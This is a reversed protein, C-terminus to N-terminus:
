QQSAYALDNSNEGISAVLSERSLGFPAACAFTGWLEWIPRIDVPWKRYCSYLREMGGRRLYDGGAAPLLDVFVDHMKDLHREFALSFDAKTRRNRVKEPLLADLAQIHVHKVTRGRLRIREPTSFAFEIFRRAYMPTRPEYGVRACQRDFQDRALEFFPNKLSEFMSRRPRNAIAMASSKDAANRCETLVQEIAPDLWFAGDFANPGKPRRSRLLRMVTAPLYPVLGFRALRYSVAGVGMDSMDERFSRGVAPWDRESIQEAYYYARGALWEDGGEGSLSVRCGDQVLKEGISVAMATNPYPAMDRDLRAREAFWSLDPFFPEVEQVEAGVHAAVARAFDLEDPASGQEFRYTYGKLGPALLQGKRRLDEAVAFVASSDLGGSVDSAVPLQSRSSQRVCDVLLERYHDYYDEDRRYRITVETPPSWYIATRMGDKGFRAWTAPLLRMVGKWITEGRTIWENTLVQAIMVKNPEQAIGPAVLIAGPDSAIILRKGDWHYHLPKLGAHDRACFATGQRRDWIVFAFEGEIRLPCGEGWVEYARLVVEADSRTRIAAGKARLEDRLAELNHLHGDLVLVLNGDDSVLPQAATMSEATTHLAGFGLAAPGDQWHSIGDPGRYAMEETLREITGPEVNSGDFHFVAAIGSM